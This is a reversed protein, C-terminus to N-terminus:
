ASRLHHYGDQLIQAAKADTYEVPDEWKLAPYNETNMLKRFGITGQDPKAVIDGCVFHAVAWEAPMSGSILFKPFGDAHGIKHAMAFYKSAVRHDPSWTKMPVAGLGFLSPEIGPCRWTPDDLWPAEGHFFARHTSQTIFMEFRLDTLPTVAPAAMAVAPRLALVAPSPRSSFVCKDVSTYILSTEKWLM